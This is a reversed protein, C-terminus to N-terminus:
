DLMTLIDRAMDDWTRQRLTPTIESLTVARTDSHRDLWRSLKQALEIPDNPDNLLLWQLSPTYREAVGSDRSVIAPVGCCLAEHVALGYAEYRTPAVMLDCAALIRHVDSRFGLFVVDANLGHRKALERWSDLEGGVGVVVLVGDWRSSANLSRWSEFLTDFGKRRDNLGGVFLVHPRDAWGLTRKAERREDDTRPKFKSPDIGYYAIFASKLYGVKDVM